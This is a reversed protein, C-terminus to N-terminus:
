IYGKEILDLISLRKKRIEELRAKASREELWRPWLPPKKLIERWQLEEILPIHEAAIKGVFLTELSGGDHLYDFLGVLGRLYVADKTLGGGRFVRTTITFASKRGFRYREHLQRFTEEFSSGECLMHVAVVRAALIRLRAKSIGGSLYESLVAIGEQMEDYGSLGTHLQKFPQALGNTYTLVHTGIEHHLLAQVRKEPFHAWKSIFFDGGSVMAGSVIDERIQVSSRMSPYFTKYYAIENNAYEAFTEADVTDTEADAELNRQEHPLHELMTEAIELLASEVKGYAPISGYLFNPTDRDSLMTLKRDLEERKQCFLEMLTPDEIKGIPIDYLTRKMQPIDFPRPRYLFHPTGTYGKAKFSEWAEETNVPTVQLLFDFADDIKALANDVDWVVKTVLRRGMMAYHTPCSGTLAVSFRYFANKLAKAVGRRIKELEIPYLTEGTEDQYVPAVGLGLLYTNCRQSVDKELLSPLAAPAVSECRAIQVHARLRHLTIKKLWNRLTEVTSLLEEPQDSFVRFAPTQKTKTEDCFAKYPLSWLEIILFHGFIKSMTGAIAELLPAVNEGGLVTLYSAEGYVLRETGVDAKEKPKRYVCLFPLQRDIHIRGGGPLKKRVARNAQLDATVSEIFDKGIQVSGNV